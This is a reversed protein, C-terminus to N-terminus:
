ESRLRAAEASLVAVAAIPATSARLVHPGLGLRPTQVFAALEGPDLGGEPGVLVTWGSDPGAVAPPPLESAAVGGLEAVVLGPRDVFTALDAVEDVVPIRARRSQM